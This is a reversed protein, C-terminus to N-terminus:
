KLMECFAAEEEEVAAAVVGEKVEDAVGGAEGRGAEALGDGVVVDDGEEFLPSLAPRPTPRPSPM